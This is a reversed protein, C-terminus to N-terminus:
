NRSYIKNIENDSYHKIQTEDLHYLINVHHKNKLQQDIMAKVELIEAASPREVKVRYGEYIRDWTEDSSDFNVEATAEYMNKGIKKLAPFSSFDTRKMLRDFIYKDEGPHFVVSWGYTPYAVDLPLKYNALRNDRLYPEIDKRSFISNDTTMEMLNGTNYVMLVGKDVPPPTQTLQHFRITSSLMQTSDMYLKMEECLTFFPKRTGKSWDCDLQIEKFPISNQRCMANIRKYIKEAYLYEKLQMQNIASTTIYVTPVIEVGETISDIFMITGEPLVEDGRGSQWHSDVDFFRVYIKSVAHEKLFRRETENLKFTTRWYYISNGDADSPSGSICRCSTLIILICIIFTTITSIKM